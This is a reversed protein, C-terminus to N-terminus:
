DSAAKAFAELAGAMLKLPEDVGALGHRAKLTEPKVYGLWVKGDKDEWAVIRMPLDIAAQPNALMLPTGLKPNGFLLVQTPKMALGAAAAGAAHDIRAAPQIGKEALAKVLRDITEAVPYKSPRVALDQALAPGVTLLAALAALILRM